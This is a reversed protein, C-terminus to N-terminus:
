EAYMTARVLDGFVGLHDVVKAAGAITEAAVRVAKKEQESDTAGWLHVVGGTVIVNLFETRAGTEKAIVKTVADGLAVDDSSPTPLLQKHAALGRILDARSVIGVLAGGDVVPMRKVRHRELLTAIEDLPTEPNITIVKGTMVDGARRGHSKVYDEAKDQPTTLLQLWWSRHQETGIEQQHILDGESVIGVVIGNGDVVPVASIHRSMLIKAVDEISTEPVVTAVNRSMVDKARM